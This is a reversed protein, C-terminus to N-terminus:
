MDSDAISAKIELREVALAAVKQETFAQQCSM